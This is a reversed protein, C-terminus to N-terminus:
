FGARARLEDFSRAKHIDAYSPTNTQFGTTATSSGIPASAGPQPQSYDLMSDSIPDYMKGQQHFQALPGTAVARLDTTGLKAAYGYLERRAVRGPDNRDNSNIISPLHGESQLASEMDDFEKNTQAQAKEAEQQAQQGAKQYGELGSQM